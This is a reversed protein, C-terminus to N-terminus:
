DMWCGREADGNNGQARLDEVGSPVGAFYLCPARPFTARWRWNGLHTCPPTHLQTRKACDRERQPMEPCGPANRPMQTREACNALEFFGRSKAASRGPADRLSTGPIWKLRRTRNPNTECIRGIPQALDRPTAGPQAVNRASQTTLFRNSASWCSARMARRGDVGRKARGHVAARLAVGSASRFRPFIRRIETVGKARATVEGADIM